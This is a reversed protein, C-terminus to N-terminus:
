FVAEHLQAAENIFRKRFDPECRPHGLWGLRSRERLVEASLARKPPSKTSQPGGCGRMHESTNSGM